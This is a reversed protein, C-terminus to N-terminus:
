QTTFCIEIIQLTWSRGQPNSPCLNSNASPAARYTCNLSLPVNRRGATCAKFRRPRSPIIFSYYCVTCLYVSTSSLRGM